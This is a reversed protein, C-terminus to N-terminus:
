AGHGVFAPAPEVELLEQSRARARGAVDPAGVSSKHSRWQNAMHVALQEVYTEVFAQLAVDSAETALALLAHHAREAAKMATAQAAQKVDRESEASKMAIEIADAQGILHATDATSVTQGSRAAELMRAGADKRSADMAARNALLQSDLTGITREAEVLEATCADVLGVAAVMEREAAATREPIALHLTLRAIEARLGDEQRELNELRSRASKSEGRLIAVSGHEITLREGAGFVTAAAAEHVKHAAEHRARAGTLDLDLLRERARAIQDSILIQWTSM